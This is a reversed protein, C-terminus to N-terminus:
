RFAKRTMLFIFKVAALEHDDLPLADDAPHSKPYTM